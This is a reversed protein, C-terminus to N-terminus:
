EKEKAVRVVCSATRGNWEATVTTVGPSVGRVTGDASVEAIEPDASIWAAERVPAELVRLTVSHAEGTGITVDAASLTITGDSAPAPAAGPDAMINLTDAVTQVGGSELVIDLHGSLGQPIHLAFFALHTGDAVAQVGVQQRLDFTETGSPTLFLSVADVGAAMGADADWGNQFEVAVLVKRNPAFCYWGDGLDPRLPAADEDFFSVGTLCPEQRRPVDTHTERMLATIIGISLLALLVLTGLILLVVRRGNWFPAKEAAEPGEESAAATRPAAEEPPPFSVGLAEELLRLNEPSPVSAGLEWKSVAQRSVELREALDEQTLGLSERAQRISDSLNM